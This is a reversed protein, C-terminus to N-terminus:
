EVLGRRSPSPAVDTSGSGSQLPRLPMNCIPCRGPRPERIQPHMPCTYVAAQEMSAGHDHGDMAAPATMTAPATMARGGRGRPRGDGRGPGGEGEDGGEREDGHVDGPSYAERVTGCTRMEDGFYANDVESSRQVWDAGAFDFAMPCHVRHAVADTPNGFTEFLSIVATSARHFAQRAVDLSQAGHIDHGADVITRRMPAWAEAANAPSSPSFADAAEALANSAHQAAALDDAALATAVDLYPNVVSALSERFAAGIADRLAGAGSRDDPHMMMSHGGRIQLEADIAFAGEVVIVEGEALGALVPYVDGARPGLRVSRPAYTPADMGEVEVYVVSRRGTFLAASAPIVLPSEMEGREVEVMAEVFMGPRLRGEQSDVEVRVHATRRVPDVVPDVFVVHGELVEGPLGEVTFTVQQGETLLPLDSEYADLQVWLQDLDALRYLVAGTSVYSGETAVRELVTGGFPSRIRVSRTPASAEEMRSLEADPVGLLRLRQRSAELTAEAARRATGTGASLRALQAKSVLLDQHAAYVEPSYLTAIVQGRRIREGTVDVHLREIRGGIWATVERRTSEDPTIEGLLRRAGSAGARHVVATRVQALVKARESLSVQEGSELDDVPILDMGCIPCQGPEGSHVNPHMACTYEATEAEETAPEPEAMACTGFVFASIAVVPLLLWPGYRFLQETRESM